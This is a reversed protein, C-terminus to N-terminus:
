VGGLREYYRELFGREKERIGEKVEPSMKEWLAPHFSLINLDKSYYVFRKREFKEFPNALISRKVKVLDDLFERDYACGRRDVPLGREIRDIYFRRYEEILADISVEGEKDALRLMSLMFILKFSFTLTNEDIFAEFDRLITSDDHHGLGHAARIAEIDSPSFYPVMRSGIPLQLSSIGNDRRYWNMLTATGIFLERAAQEPSLYDKYKEEFTFIDIERMAIESEHLGLISLYDQENNKVGMFDSYQPIGIVANFCMPTLKGEYNDVVDIVYLCEKGPYKRVGRGMQQTYLVKSLTPRAMVVVETQPSDWGESILQCSLLFQIKKEGYQEFIEENHRNGGYVARAAFGAATMMKELKKAHNVNVCFVIGQKCFGERPYFYKKLTRVILENRSDVILTKELDAYNYDKGNYRVASLDVNSLLRYCRINTIVDKDIAERLTLNTKYHGFIDELKKRDLREPTATLGVLYKPTFYQLTKACNAAQAHQAEDFLLYDFYDEATHNRRLYSRNYLEITIDLRDRFPELRAEWDAKIRVSPVMVLVREIKGEKYLRYIDEIAIQSKGTGTPEVVLSTNIGRERAARMEQLFTEQHTYLAFPRTGKIFHANRFANRPGLYTRISDIAQDRFRLNEFSFRFTKFGMLSLTNQKELQRKYAELRIIQPHHYRVGNEEIAYSGTSTEVVYDVFANRGNSLSLSYEKQLFGLADNGYTEVFLDEFTKELPTNDVHVKDFVGGKDSIEIDDPEMTLWNHISERLDEGEAAYFRFLRGSSAMLGNQMECYKSYDFVADNNQLCLDYDVVVCTSDKKMVVSHRLSDYYYDEVTEFGLSHLYPLETPTNVQTQVTM